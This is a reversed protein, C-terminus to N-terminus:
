PSASALRDSAVKAILAAEMESRAEVHVRRFANLAEELADKGSETKPPLYLVEVDTDSPVHVRESAANTLWAGASDRLAEVAFAWARVDTTLERLDAVEFSWASSLQVAKGNAVAFDFKAPHEIGEVLPREVTKEKGLGATRYAAGLVSHAHSKTRFGRQGKAPDTVLERFILDLAEDASEAMIPAPESIQLVRAHQRHLRELWQENAEPTEGLDLAVQSSTVIRQLGTARAMVNELIGAKDIALARKQNSVTRVSWDSQDDSGAIAGINVFEGSGPDPVFRLVSYVYRNM